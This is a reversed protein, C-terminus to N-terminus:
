YGPVILSNEWIFTVLPPNNLFSVINGLCSAFACHLHKHQWHHTLWQALLHTTPLTWQQLSTYTIFLNIFIWGRFCTNWFSSLWLELLSDLLWCLTMLSWHHSHVRWPRLGQLPFVQNPAVRLAMVGIGEQNSAFYFFNRIKGQYSM